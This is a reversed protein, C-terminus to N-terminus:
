ASIRAISSDLAELISEDSTAIIVNPLTFFHASDKGSVIVVKNLGMAMGAEYRASEQVEEWLYVLADCNRIAEKEDYAKKVMDSTDHIKAVWDYTITHGADKLQKIITGARDLDKGAVYVKM